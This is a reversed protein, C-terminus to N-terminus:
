QIFHKDYETTCLNKLACKLFYIRMKTNGDVMKLAIKGFHAYFYTSSFLWKHIKIVDFHLQNMNSIYVSKKAM